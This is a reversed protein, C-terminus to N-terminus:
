TAVNPTTVMDEFLSFLDNWEEVSAVITNGEKQVLINEGHWSIKFRLAEELSAKQAAIKELKQQLEREQEALSELSLRGVDPHGSKPNLHYSVAAPTVGLTDAIESKLKGQGFLELVKAKTEGLPRRNTSSAPRAELTANNNEYRFQAISCTGPPQATLHYGDCDECKYSYQQASGYKARNVSEFENAEM